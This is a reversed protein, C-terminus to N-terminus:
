LVVVDAVTGDAGGSDCSICATSSIPSSNQPESGTRSVINAGPFAKFQIPQVLRVPIVKRSVPPSKKEMMANKVASNSSFDSDSM